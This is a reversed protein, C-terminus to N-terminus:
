AVCLSSKVVFLGLGDHPSPADRASGDASHDPRIQAGAPSHHEVLLPATGARGFDDGEQWCM